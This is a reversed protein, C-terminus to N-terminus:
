ALERQDTNRCMLGDVTAPNFASALLDLYAAYKGERRLWSAFRAIPLNTITYLKNFVIGVHAALERKYDAELEAQPGPLFDATPIISWHRPLDPRKGYGLRNLLQLATFARTSCATV